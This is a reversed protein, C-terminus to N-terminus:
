KGKLSRKELVRPATEKLFLCLVAAVVMCIGAVMYISPLGSSDAVMGLIFPIVAAGVLDGAGNIIAGATASDREGVSEMTITAFYFVSLSSALGSFLVFLVQNAGSNPAAFMVLLAIADLISFIVCTPKRGLVNSILSIVINWVVYAIGMGSMLLGMSVDSLGVVSMWYDPAYLLVSWLGVMTLIGLFLCLIMNRNSFIVKFGSKQEGQAEPKTEEAAAAEFATTTMAKRLVVLYCIAIVILPLSVVLGAMQWSMVGLLAVMLTPGIMSSIIGEGSCVVGNALAFQKPPAVNLCASCAIAFVPGAGVGVIARTFLLFGFNDGALSMLGQGIAALILCLFMVQAHKHKSDAIRSLFIASFFVCVVLVLNATGLQSASLDPRLYQLTNRCLFAFGWAFFGLIMATIGKKTSRAIAQTM